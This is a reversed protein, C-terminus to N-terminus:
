SQGSTPITGQTAGGKPACDVLAVSGAPAKAQSSYVTLVGNMGADRAIGLWMSCADVDGMKNRIQDYVVRTNATNLEGPIGGKQYGILTKAGDTLPWVLVPVCVNGDGAAVHSCSIYDYGPTTTPTPPATTAPSAGDAAGQKAALYTADPDADGGLAGIVKFGVILLAVLIAVAPGIGARWNLRRL